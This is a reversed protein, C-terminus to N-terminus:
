ITSSSVSIKQTKGMVNEGTVMVCTVSWSQGYCVPPGGAAAKIGSPQKWTSRAEALAARSSEKGTSFRRSGRHRHPCVQTHQVFFCHSEKSSEWTLKSPLQYWRILQLINFDHQKCEGSKVCLVSESVRSSATKRRGVYVLRSQHRPEM